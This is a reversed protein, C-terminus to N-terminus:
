YFKRLWFPRQKAKVFNRGWEMLNPFRQTNHGMILWEKENFDQTGIGNLTKYIFACLGTRDAGAYCHIHVMRGKKRAKKALALFKDIMQPNPETTVIPYNHYEMGLSEVITKEDFDLRPSHMTRFNVVDTVGNDKLWCFDDAKPQASRSVVDDIKAYNKPQGQFPIFNFIRNLHM